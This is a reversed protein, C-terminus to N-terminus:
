INIDGNHEKHKRNDFLYTSKKKTRYAMVRTPFIVIFSFHLVYVLNTNACRNCHVFQLFTHTLIKKKLFTNYSSAEVKDPRFNELM